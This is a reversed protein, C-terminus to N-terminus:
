QKLFNDLINKTMLYKNGTKKTTFLNNITIDEIWDFNIRDISQANVCHHESNWKIQNMVALMGRDNTSYIKLESELEFRKILIDYGNRTLFSIVRKKFDPHSKTISRGPIIIAFKTPHHLYHLAFKGPKGLSILDVYWEGPLNDNLESDNKVSKIRNLNLVKKTARIIM